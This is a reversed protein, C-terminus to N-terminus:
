GAARWKRVRVLAFYGLAAGVVIGILMGISQALTEARSPAPIFGEGEDFAFSDNMAAYIPAVRDFEAEPSYGHVWVIAHAGLHGTSLASVNGYDYKMQMRTVFVAKERDVAFEGVKAEKLVDLMRSEIRKVAGKESVLSSELADYSLGKTAGPKIQILVYAGNVADPSPSDQSFGTEYQIHQEPLRAAAEANLEALNDAGIETWGEPVELRYHWNQSRYEAAEAFGVM